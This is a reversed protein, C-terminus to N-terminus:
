CVESTRQAGLTVWGEEALRACVALGAAHLGAQLAAEQPELV